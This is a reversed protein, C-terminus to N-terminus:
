SRSWVIMGDGELIARVRGDTLLANLCDLTESLSMGASIAVETETMQADALAEYVKERDSM